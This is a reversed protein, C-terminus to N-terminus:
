ANGSSRKVLALAKDKDFGVKEKEFTNFLSKLSEASYEGNHIIIYHKRCIPLTKRHM